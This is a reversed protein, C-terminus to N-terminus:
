EVVIEETIVCSQEHTLSGGCSDARRRKTSLETNDLGQLTRKMEAVDACLQSLMDAIPVVPAEDDSEQEYEEDSGSRESGCSESGCSESGCSEDTHPTSGGDFAHGYYASASDEVAKPDFGAESCKARFKKDMSGSIHAFIKPTSSLLVAQYAVLASGTMPKAGFTGIFEEFYSSENIDESMCDIDGLEHSYRQDVNGEGVPASSFGEGSNDELEPECGSSNFEAGSEDSGHSDSHLGDGFDGLALDVAVSNSVAKM